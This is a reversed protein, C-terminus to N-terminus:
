LSCLREYVVETPHSCIKLLKANIASNRTKTYMPIPKRVPFNEFKLQVNDMRTIISQMKALAKCMKGNEYKAFKVRLCFIM